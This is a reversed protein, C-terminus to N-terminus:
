PNAAIAHTSITTQKVTCNESTNTLDTHRASEPKSQNRPGQKHSGYKGYTVPKYKEGYDAPYSSENCGKHSEVLDSM